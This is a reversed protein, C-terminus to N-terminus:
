FTGTALSLGMGRDGIKMPTPRMSVKMSKYHRTLNFGIAAGIPPAAILLALSGESDNSSAIAVVALLTTVMSGGVAAGLSGEVDDRDGVLDVGVAAMITGGLFAGLVAGGYCEDECDHDMAFGLYAGGIGGGVAFLGGVMLEGFVLGGDLPPTGARAPRYTGAAEEQQAVPRARPAQRCSAIVPDTKIVARYFEPDLREVQSGLARAGICDGRVAAARTGRALSLVQPDTLPPPAVEGPPSMAEPPPLTGPGMPDVAGPQAHAVVPALAILTLLGLSPRM